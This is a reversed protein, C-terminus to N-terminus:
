MLLDVEKVLTQTSPDSPSIGNQFSKTLKRKEEHPMSLPQELYDALSVLFIDCSCIIKFVLYFVHVYIRQLMLSPYFYKCISKKEPPHDPQPDEM